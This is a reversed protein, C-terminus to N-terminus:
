TSKAPSTPQPNQIEEPMLPDAVTKQHVHFYYTDPVARSTEVDPM